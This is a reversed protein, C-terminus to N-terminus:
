TEEKNTYIQDAVDPFDDEIIRIESARNNYIAELRSLVWRKRGRPLLDFIVAMKMVAVEEENPLNRLAQILQIEEATLILNEKSDKPRAPNTSRKLEERIWKEDFDTKFRRAIKIITWKSRENTLDTQGTEIKTIAPDSVGIEEALKVTSIGEGRRKKRIKWALSDEPPEHKSKKGRPKIAKGAV